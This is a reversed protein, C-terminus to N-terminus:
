SRRSICHLGSSFIQWTGLEVKTNQFNAHLPKNNFIKTTEGACQELHSLCGEGLDMPVSWPM